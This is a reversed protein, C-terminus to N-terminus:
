KIPAPTARPDDKVEAAFLIIMAFSPLLTGVETWTNIQFM